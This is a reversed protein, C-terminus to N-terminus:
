QMGCCRRNISGSKNLGNLYFIDESKATYEFLFPNRSSKNEESINDKKKHSYSKNLSLPLVRYSLSIERGLLEKGKVILLGKVYDVEYKYQEIIRNSLFIIESNPVLSLTDIQLTDSDLIFSRQRINAVNQADLSKILGAAIILLIFHFIKLRFLGLSLKCLYSKHLLM